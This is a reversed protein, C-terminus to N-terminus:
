NSAWTRIIRIGVNVWAQKVLYVQRKGRWKSQSTSTASHLANDTSKLKFFFFFDPVLFTHVCLNLTAGGWSKLNQPKFCEQPIDETVKLALYDDPWRAGNGNQFTSWLLGGLRSPQKGTSGRHSLGKTTFDRYRRRPPHPLYHPLFTNLGHQAPKFALGTAFRPNTTSFATILPHFKCGYNPPCMKKAQPERPPM